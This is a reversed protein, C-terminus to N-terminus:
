IESEAFILPPPIMEIDIPNDPLPPIMEINIPRLMDDPPPPLMDINIHDGMNNVQNKRIKCCFVIILSLILCLITVLTCCLLIELYIIDMHFISSVNKSFPQTPHEFTTSFSQNTTIAVTNITLTKVHDNQTVIESTIESTSTTEVQRPTSFTSLKCKGDDCYLKKNNIDYIEKLNIWMEPLYYIDSTIDAKIFISVTQLTNYTSQRPRPFRDCTLYIKIGLNLCRSCYYLEPANCQKGEVTNYFYGFILLLLYGSIHM